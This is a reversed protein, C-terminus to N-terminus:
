FVGCAVTIGVAVLVGGGIEGAWQEFRNGLRSGIELGLMSMAISVITIVAVAAFLSVQSAGLAVGVVLNDISLAFAVILLRRNSMSHPQLHDVDRRSQYVNYAGTLILLAGGVLDAKSGLPGAVRRGLILGVLPMAAEFVGFAIGVRWRTRSDVGGIGIGISAAFNGLGVAVAVLLIELV